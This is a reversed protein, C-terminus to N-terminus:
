TSGGNSITKLDKYIVTEAGSASTSKLRFLLLGDPLKCYRSVILHSQKLLLICLEGKGTVLFFNLYPYFHQSTGSPETIRLTHKCPMDNEFRVTRLM